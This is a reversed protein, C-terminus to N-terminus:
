VYLIDEMFEYHALVMKRWYIYPMFVIAEIYFARLEDASM